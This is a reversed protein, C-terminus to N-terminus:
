AVMSILSQQYITDPEPTYTMTKKGKTSEQQNTRFRAPIGVETVASELEFDIMVSKLSQPLGTALKGPPEFQSIGFAKM